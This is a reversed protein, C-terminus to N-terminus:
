RAREGPDSTAVMVVGLLVIAVGLTRGWGVPEHLWFAGLLLSLVYSLGLIPQLVSLPGYRYAVLMLMAGATYVALGALIWVLGHQAGLKWLFQGLCACTSSLVMLGVGRTRVAPVPSESM